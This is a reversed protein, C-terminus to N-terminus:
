ISPSSTTGFYAAMVTPDNRVETFSGQAIVQGHNLVTVSDCLEAIVKMNHEIILITTGLGHVHHVLQWLTKRLTPNVGAAPEDLLILSPQNMLVRTFEVLRQQGYSLDSALVQAYTEMTVKHLLAMARERNDADHGAPGAVMLNELVTMGLFLRSLQFTRALGKHYIQSPRLGLISQGNLLITGVGGQDMGSVVQFLTTKGSGNPGILGTIMGRPVVLNVGQLAHVGGFHRQLNHIELINPTNLTM